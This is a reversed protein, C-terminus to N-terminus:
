FALPPMTEVLTRIAEAGRAPAMAGAHIQLALVLAEDFMGDYKGTHTELATHIRAIGERIAEFREETTAGDPWDVPTIAPGVRVVRGPHRKAKCEHSLSLYALHDAYRDLTTPPPCWQHYPTIGDIVVSCAFCRYVPGFQVRHQDDM